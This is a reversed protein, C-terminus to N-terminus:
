NGASPALVMGTIRHLWERRAFGTIVSKSWLLEEYQEREKRQFWLSVHFVDFLCVTKMKSAMPMRYSYIRPGLADALVQGDQGSLLTASLELSYYDAKAQDIRTLFEFM